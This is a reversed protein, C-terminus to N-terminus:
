SGWDVLIGAHRLALGLVDARQAGLAMRIGIEQRAQIVAYSLVGYIGIMALVLALGAFSLMLLTGFREVTVSKGIMSDLTGVADLPLEPDIERIAARAGGILMEPERETRVALTMGAFPIQAAPEYVAPLGKTTLNQDRVDGVIGIIEAPKTGNMVQIKQGLPDEGSYFQRAM